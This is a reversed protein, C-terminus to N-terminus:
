KRNLKQPLRITPLKELGVCSQVTRGVSVFNGQKPEIKVFDVDLRNGHLVARLPKGGAEFNSLMRLEELASPTMNQAEDVVLLAHKGLEHRSILFDEIQCLLTAKDRGEFPLRFASAVM